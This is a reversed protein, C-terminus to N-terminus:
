RTGIGFYEFGIEKAQKSSLINRGDFIIPRKMLQKMKEYDPQRFEGWETIIFLADAGELASYASNAIFFMPYDKFINKANESAVPDYAKIEGGREILGKIITISPAERMDDTNPKFALGWIAFVLGSLDNGFKTVAKHVLYLKQEENVEEVSELVRMRLGLDRATSILAKVDKPFCSGGYGVGPFLFKPGIRPDAGMGRRVQSVDAGIADCIRAIENMFSIRTALMANSAYKTLESSKIDMFIIPNDTRVFPAFMEALISRAKESDTGIVIRDPKMMDRIADGEKLFEPNSAVDFPHPTQCRIVERVKECTGVPVTSKVVVLRYGDMAKGIVKACDLVHSLDASGDENPPTGVAIFIVYSKKVLDTIDTTFKLRGQTKNRNVLEELGPEYIPIIGANLKDIKQSDVDGCIVHNGSEALGAGVVLGVYGTGIVGVRM